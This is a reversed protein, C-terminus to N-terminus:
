GRFTPQPQIQRSDLLKTKANHVSMPPLRSGPNYNRASLDLSSCKHAPVMNGHETARWRGNVLHSCDHNTAEDAWCPYVQCRRPLLEKANFIKCVASNPRDLIRYNSHM